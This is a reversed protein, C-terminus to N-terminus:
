VHNLVNYKDFCSAPSPHCVPLLDAQRILGTAIAMSVVLATTTRDEALGVAVLIAIQIASAEQTNM